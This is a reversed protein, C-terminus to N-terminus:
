DIIINRQLCSRRRKQIRQVLAQVKGRPRRRREMKLIKPRLMLKDLQHNNKAKKWRDKIDSL